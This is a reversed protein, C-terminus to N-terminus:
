MPQQVRASLGRAAERTLKSLPLSSYHRDGIYGTKAAIVTFWTYAGPVSSVALKKRTMLDPRPGAVTGSKGFELQVGLQTGADHVRQKDVLARLTGKSKLAGTGAAILFGAAAPMQCYASLDHTKPEIAIWRGKVKVRAIVHAERSIGSGNTCNAIASMLALIDKPAASARGTVLGLAPEVGVPLSFGTDRMAQTLFAKPTTRALNLIALNKSQGFADTVSIKGAPGSCDVVGTFGGVDEIHSITDEKSCLETDARAGARAAALAVVLKGISGTESLPMGLMDRESSTYYQTVAGNRDMIISLADGPAAHSQRQITNIAAAAAQQFPQGADVSSTLQVAEVPGYKSEAERLERNLATSEGPVLIRVRQVPNSAAICGAHDDLGTLEALPAPRTPLQMRQITQIAKAAAPDDRGFAKILGYIARDKIAQREDTEAKTYLKADDCSWQIRRKPLAALIAQEALTTNEPERSFFALSALRIGKLDSGGPSAGYTLSDAIFIRTKREDESLFISISFADFIEGAKHGKRDGMGGIRNQWGRSSSMELTSGGICPAKPRVLRWIKYCAFGKALSAADVGYWSRLPNIRDGDELATLTKFFGEPVDNSPLYIANNDDHGSKHRIGIRKGKQDFVEVAVTNAQLMAYKERVDELNWHGIIAPTSLALAAGASSVKLTMILKRRHRPMQATPVPSLNRQRGVVNPIAYSPMGFGGFSSLAEARSTLRLRQLWFRFNLDELESKMRLLVPAAPIDFVPFNPM